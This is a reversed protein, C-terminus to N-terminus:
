KRHRRIRGRVTFQTSVAALSFLVFVSGLVYGVISNDRKEKLADELALYSRGDVKIAVIDQGDLTLEIEDGVSVVNAFAFKNFSPFALSHIIYEQREAKHIEVTIYARVSRYGHEERYSHYFGNVTQYKSTQGHSSILSAIIIFVGFIFLIACLVIKWKTWRDKNVIIRM